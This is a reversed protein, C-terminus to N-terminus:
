NVLIVQLSATSVYMLLFLLVRWTFQVLCRILACSSLVRLDEQLEVTVEWCSLCFSSSRDRDHRTETLCAQSYYDRQYAHAPCFM